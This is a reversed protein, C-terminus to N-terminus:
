WAQDAGCNPCHVSTSVDAAFAYGCTCRYLARDDPGGAERMRQEEHLDRATPPSPEKAPPAPAQRPATTTGNRSAFRPRDRDASTRRLQPRVRM